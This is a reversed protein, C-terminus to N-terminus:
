ELLAGEQRLRQRLVQLNVARVEGHVSAALCAALGTAHGMAMSISMVRIAALAEHTASICRGVVLANDLGVPTLSRLPIQYADDPGLCRFELGGGSAAHIDIPYAGAAVADEFPRCGVLDAASLVHEGMVRRTERVGLQTGFALLRGKACGPVERALFHAARWAQRRGEMEALSLAHPDTADVPLRGINFWAEETQPDRAHHLAPRALDGHAHGRAAIRQLSGVDLAGLADFDIPGFRFMLTAPQLVEGAELDLLRAGAQRLAEADGSADILVRPRLRQRGGRTLLELEQIRGSECAVSMLTCHLMPRVNADAVMDDLVLKLLEPSYPVRDMRHGTSMTFVEHAAAGGIARLRDVVEQALGAVVRRGNATQWSNFQAVAGATANGGFFGYREVLAVSAGGRGAAVAAMTGAVGGGLVAVDVELLPSM